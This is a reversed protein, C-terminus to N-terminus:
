LSVRLGVSGFLTSRGPDYGGAGPVYNPLADGGSMWGAEAVVSGVKLGRSLNLFASWRSELADAAVDGSVPEFGDNGRYFIAGRTSSFRDWGAGALVGLPGVRKGLSLRAALDDVGFRAEGAFGVCELSNGCRSGYNLPGTHRFVGSLTIGPTTFSERLLAVQLGAGLTAATNGGVGTNALAGAELLLDLAGSGRTGGEVLRTATSLKLALPTAAEERDPQTLDPLHVSAANLRLTLTTRPLLGLTV